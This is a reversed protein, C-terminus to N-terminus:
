SKNSMITMTINTIIQHSTSCFDFAIEDCRVSPEWQQHQGHGGPVHVIAKEVIAKGCGVGVKEIRYDKSPFWEICGGGLSCSTISGLLLKSFLFM